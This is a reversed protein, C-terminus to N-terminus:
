TSIPIQSAFQPVSDANSEMRKSCCCKDLGTASAFLFTCSFRRCDNLLTYEFGLIAVWSELLGCVGKEFFQVVVALALWSRLWPSLRNSMLRVVLFMSFSDLVNGRLRSAIASKIHVQARSLSFHQQLFCLMIQLQIFLHLRLKCVINKLLKNM